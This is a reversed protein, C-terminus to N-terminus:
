RKPAAQIAQGLRTDFQSQESSPAPLRTLNLLLERLTPDDNASHEGRMRASLRSVQLDMRRQRDEDPSEIGALAELQLLCDHLADASATDRPLGNLAADMRARMDAGAIGLPPLAAIAQSAADGSLEGREIRRCLAYHQEWTTYESLQAQQSHREVAERLKLQAASFRERLAPDAVSLANWAADIRQQETREPPTEATALAEM